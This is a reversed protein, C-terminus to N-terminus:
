MGSHRSEVLVIGSSGSPGACDSRSEGGDREYSKKCCSKYRLYIDEITQRDKVIAEVEM